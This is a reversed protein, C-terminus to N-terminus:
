RPRRGSDVLETRRVALGALDELADYMRQSHSRSDAVLASAQQPQGAPHAEGAAPRPASRPTLWSLLLAGCAPTLRGAARYSGNAEPILSFSRQRAHEEDSALGGDPNLHALIRQGIVGVERPRLQVAARVLQQEATSVDAPDLSSPLEDLTSAIVRAHEPSVVGAAQAAAVEPLLTELQEGTLGWRPGCLQSAAVRQHAEHPSLRLAAQLLASTSGLVLWGAPWRVDDLNPSWRTISWRSGVGCCKSNECNLWCTPM